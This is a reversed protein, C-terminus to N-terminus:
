RLPTLKVDTNLEVEFGWQKGDQLDPHCYKGPDVGVTFIAKAIEIDKDPLSTPVSAFVSIEAGHAIGELVCTTGNGVKVICHHMASVAFLPVVVHLYESHERAEEKSLLSNSRLTAVFGETLDHPDFAPGVLMTTSVHKVLRIETDTADDDLALTNDHNDKLRESLRVLISHAKSRTLGTEKKLNAADIQSAACKFYERASSSLSNKDFVKDESLLYPVVHRVTAFWARTSRTVIGKDREHHHAVFHGIEAVHERGDCRDRAYLFLNTLDDPRFTGSLLRQVRARSKADASGAM